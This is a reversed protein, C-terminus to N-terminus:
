LDTEEGLPVTVRTLILAGTEPWAGVSPRLSIQLHEVRDLQLRDGPGGRGSAPDVWYSWNNPFGQPLLVARALQLDHLAVEMLETNAPIELGTRWATGDAEVLTLLAPLPQGTVALEIRLIRARDLDERRDQVRNKIQLAATLDDPLNERDDPVAIQFGGVGNNTLHPFVQQRLEWNSRNYIMDGVDGASADFLALEAGSDVITVAAAASSEPSLAVVTGEVSAEFGFRWRGPVLAGAPLNAAYRYRRERSMPFRRTDGEASRAVLVVETALVPSVVEAAVTMARDAVYTARVRPLIQAPLDPADPSVFERLGLHGVREPLADIDVEAERSLVYVGPRVSFTGDIATVNHAHDVELPVVHFAPGLDPLRVTMPWLRAVLRSALVNADWRLSFPDAVMEADPYVELRWVGDALRDFFYAGSGEYGVVPSDGRGVIRALESPNEPASGTDNAHMFVEDTVLESSDEEYSVRFPGFTRNDPYDGYRSYQPIRRLVEGAIIGSVAKKPSHVLNMWHTQWGRNFPATALMDYSFMAAFQAGVGRFARAMAPYMYGSDMDASDFEYVIMPWDRVEPRMLPDYDDVTRLYNATLAHTSNLGTPYWGYSGGQVRSAKTPPIIDFTQSINHFTIKECGTDRVAQVLANIYDVSGAFDDPHHWPENIMEIFLIQPEDKLAVGTYPNVHDLFQRLYNQQAAIAAPDLGLVRKEYHAAFGPYDGEPDADPWWASYTHIPNFLIYIGRQKAQFIAYDLVDIHDNVILNGEIDSSEWDGWTALRVGDWGMRAFHTMDQEVLKKRDANVDGAARYDSASGLNYNAGYLAVERDDAHWRIVGHDDVYVLEEADLPLSIGAM